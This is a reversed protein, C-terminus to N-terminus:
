PGPTLRRLLDDVDAGADLLDGLSFPCTPPLAQGGGGIAVLKRAALLRADAWIEALDIRSRMSPSARKRARRLAADAEVLWHRVPEPRSAGFALLLHRLAVELLSEVSQLESRGVSEVEEIVNDWDLDNPREGAAVRRLLAAQRESWLLIDADYLTTM